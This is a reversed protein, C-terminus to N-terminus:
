QFSNKLTEGTFSFPLYSRASKIHMVKDEPLAFYLDYDANQKEEYEVMVQRCNGCCGAQVLVKGKGPKAAVALATIPTNPNISKAAFLAVREACLGSPYAANEQNNGLIVQGDALAVAAGVHFGSYPAYANDLAKIAGRILNQVDDALESIHYLSYEIKISQHDAM